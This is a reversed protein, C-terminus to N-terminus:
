AEKTWKLLCCDHGQMLTQNRELREKKARAMPYDAYCVTAYGLDAAGAARYTEAWLCRTIKTGRVKGTTELNEMAVVHAFVDSPLNGFYRQRFEKRLWIQDTAHKLMEVLKERGITEALALFLPIAHDRFAFNFAQQYSLDADPHARPIAAGPPAAPPAEQKPSEQASADASFALWCGLCLGAGVPLSKALFDRRDINTTKNM